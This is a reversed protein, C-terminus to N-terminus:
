FDMLILDALRQGKAKSYKQTCNGIAYCKPLVTSECTTSVELYGDADRSILKKPVFDVAPKSTTKVYIAACSVISYNDLEVKQLTENETFVNKINTNPVVVLNEVNNLKNKTAETLQETIDITDTCLYVQKYKKAADLAMKVDSSTSGIVLAPQSKAIKPVDDLNNFVCPVEKNNIVLPEYSLGSAIILHTSYVYDGNKLYCCFLRHRYSAYVVEDKFFSVNFYEVATTSKFSDSILAIKVKSNKTALEDLVEHGAASDGVIIIDVRYNM